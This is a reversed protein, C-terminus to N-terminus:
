DPQLLFQGYYTFKGATKRWYIDVNNSKEKVLNTDGIEFTATALHPGM